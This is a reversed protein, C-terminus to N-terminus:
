ESLYFRALRAVLDLPLPSDHPFKATGRGSAYPALDKRFAPGRIPAPYVAAHELYGAFHFRGAGREYTPIGYGIREEADPVAARIAARIARLRARVSPPFGALYAEVTAPPAAKKPAKDLSEGAPKGKQPSKKGDKASKAARASGKSKRAPKRASGSMRIERPEDTRKRGSRMAKIKKVGKDELFARYEASGLPVLAVRGEADCHIGFGYRKALPSSRLCPQGKSFFAERAAGAAQLPCDEGVEIFTDFYDTTHVKPAPM